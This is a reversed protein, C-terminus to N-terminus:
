QGGVACLIYISITATWPFRIPLRPDYYIRSKPLASSICLINSVSSMTYERQTDLFREVAKQTPRQVEDRSGVSPGPVHFFFGWLFGVTWSLEFETWSGREQGILGSQELMTLGPDVRTRLQLFTESEAAQTANNTKSGVGKMKLADGQTFFM